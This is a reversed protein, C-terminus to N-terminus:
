PVFPAWRLLRLSAGEEPKYAPMAGQAFARGVGFRGGLATGAVLGASAVLLKRRDIM